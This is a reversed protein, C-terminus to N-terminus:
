GTAVWDRTVGYKVGRPGGRTEAVNGRLCCREPRQPDPPYGPSGIVSLVKGWPTADLALRGARQAEEDARRRESLASEGAVVRTEVARLSADDAYRQRM